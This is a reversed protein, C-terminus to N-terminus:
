SRVVAVAIAVVHIAAILSWGVTSALMLLSEDESLQCDYFNVAFTTIRTKTLTIVNM